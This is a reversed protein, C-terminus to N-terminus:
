PQLAALRTFTCLPHDVHSRDIGVRFPRAAMQV